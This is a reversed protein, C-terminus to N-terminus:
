KLKKYATLQEHLKTLLTYLEDLEDQTLVSWPRYFYENTLNDVKERLERGKQTPQFKGPSDSTEIWGIEVAAQIAVEYDSVDYGRFEMSEAMQEATVADGNWVSGLVSWAIGAQGFYPRAVSLHCDDRYAFLGMLYERIRVISPSIDNAVRFDKFIAWKQPPEVALENEAVLQKLLLTLQKLDVDTSTEFKALQADGAEIIKRTADLAKETVQYREDTLPEIWGKVDFRAFLREFKEPNTFPDRKQFDEISFYEMGLESYYYLEIPIDNEIATDEIYAETIGLIERIISHILSWYKTFSSIEMSM